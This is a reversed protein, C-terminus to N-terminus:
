PRSLSACFAGPDGDIIAGSSSFGSRARSERLAQIHSTDGSLSYTFVAVGQAAADRMLGPNDRLSQADVHVGVPAQVDSRVRRLWDASLNLPKLYRAAAAATRDNLAISRPDLVILGLYGHPDAQRACALHRRDLSTLLWRGSAVASGLDKALSSATRCQDFVQKIEINLVQPFPAAAAAVDSLFAAREDSPGGNRGPLRLVKWGASDFGRVMQSPVSSHRSTMPDHHLVWKGDRLQQVDIEVGDWGGGLASRVASLSNEPHQASGRHAHLAMGLCAATSLQPLLALPALVIAIRLRWGLRKGVDKQSSSMSKACTM